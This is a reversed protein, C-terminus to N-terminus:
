PRGERWEGKYIAGTAGFKCLGSGHRLDGKWAGKYIDGNPFIVQGMGQRVGKSVMGEYVTNTVTALEALAEEMFNFWHRPVRNKVFDCIAFNKYQDATAYKQNKVFHHVASNHQDKMQTVRM